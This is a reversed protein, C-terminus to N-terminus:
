GLHRTEERGRGLCDLRADGAVHHGERQPLEDEPGEGIGISALGHQSEAEDDIRDAAQKRQTRGIQLGEDESAAQLSKADGGGVQERLRDDGIGEGSLRQQM